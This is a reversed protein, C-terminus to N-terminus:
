SWWTSRSCTRFTCTYRRWTSRGQFLVDRTLSSSLGLIVLSSRVDKGTKTSGVPKNESVLCFVSPKVVSISVDFVSLTGIGTVTAKLEPPPMRELIGVRLEGLSFLSAFEVARQQLELEPNTTYGALVTAIREQQNNSTTPRSSIKTISAFVFQRTLYNAYPSDLISLILDIIEVDTV